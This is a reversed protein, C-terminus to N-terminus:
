KMWAKMMWLTKEQEDIFDSMLDETGDDGAQAAMEKIERELDLINKLDDIISSVAGEGDHINKKAKITSNEIYDNFSHLPKGEITLIREAIDDIKLASDTYLEEFKDHLQFFHKGQINWHFGRLNQYYIQYDALLINLKDIIKDNKM